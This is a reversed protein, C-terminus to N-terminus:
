QGPRVSKPLKAANAAVRRAEHKTLLRGGLALTDGAIRYHGSLRTLRTFRSVAAPKLPPRTIFGAFQGAGRSVKDGVALHQNRPSAVAVSM